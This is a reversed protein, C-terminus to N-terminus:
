RWPRNRKNGPAMNMAAKLLKSDCSWVNIIRGDKTYVDFDAEVAFYPMYNRRVSSRLINVHDIQDPSVGWFKETYCLRGDLTRNVSKVGCEEPNLVITAVKPTEMPARALEAFFAGAFVAGTRSLLGM